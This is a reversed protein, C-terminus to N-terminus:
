EAVSRHLVRLLLWCEHAEGEVVLGFVMSAGSGCCVSDTAEEAGLRDGTDLRCFHSRLKSSLLCVSRGSFLWM